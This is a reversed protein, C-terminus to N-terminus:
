RRPDPRAVAIDRPGRSLLDTIAIAPLTPVGDREWRRITRDTVDLVKAFSAQSLGLWQRASRLESGKVLLDGMDGM